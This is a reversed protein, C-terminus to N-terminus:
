FNLEPLTFTKPLLMALPHPREAPKSDAAM